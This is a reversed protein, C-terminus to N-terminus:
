EEAIDTSNIHAAYQDLAPDYDSDGPHPVGSPRALGQMAATNARTARDILAPLRRMDQEFATRRAPNRLAAAPHFMALAIRGRGINRVQGHIKTISADGFWRRMSHRGLTVIIRPNILAVQQELYSSCATLEDPLPDRNQPPRCKVVNTIFVDQRRIDVRELMEDLFQGSRGVFPRGLRDEEAGPGEGVFMVVAHPNGEGPVAHTRTTSLVCARCTQIQAAVQDLRMVKGDKTIRQQESDVAHGEVGRQMCEPAHFARASNTAPFYVM